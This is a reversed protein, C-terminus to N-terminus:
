SLWRDIFAYADAKVDAPFSHGAPFLVAQFRDPVGAKAYRRQARTVLERVGDIPFLLDSEGATLMFARPALAALLTDLDCIALLGPVYMAFGHNIGDRVLTRLLGFGCSSVAVKIRADYWALWLAQLGGLSHGIVGLQASNVSPLSALLDVACTLDHLYKTQLCSGLLVRKTFEFRENAADDMAKHTSRLENAPRREEFCLLDPCLVVYGRQCLERAYAYTPDGDLGAPEAKGLHYQNAHQHIALLGPWGSPPLAGHPMLLWASIREGPEVM